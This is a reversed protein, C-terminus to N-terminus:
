IEMVGLKVLNKKSLVKEIDYKLAEEMCAKSMEQIDYKGEVFASMERFLADENHVPIVVGTKGNVVIDTNYNWDSSIVPLGAIMADILAGPFGENPYYTPFLFVDHKSLTEYGQANTLDLLGAYEVNSLKEVQEAFDDYGEEPKGYFTVRVRDELGMANLREVCKIIYNCGKEISIRSMFVFRTIGDKQKVIGKHGKWLIKKFNPITISNNLGNQLLVDRMKNSEVFIGDLYKLYKVKITNNNTKDLQRVIESGIVWYFVHRKLRVFYLFVILPYAMKQCSIVLRTNRGHVLLHWLIQFPLVPKHKWDDTDVAYVRDFLENFQRIFLQNKALEGGTAITGKAYSGIFVLEHKKM